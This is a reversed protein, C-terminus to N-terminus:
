RRARWATWGRAIRLGVAGPPVLLIGLGPDSEPHGITGLAVGRARSM